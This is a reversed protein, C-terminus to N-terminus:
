RVYQFWGGGMGGCSGEEMDDYTSFDVMVREEGVEKKWRM